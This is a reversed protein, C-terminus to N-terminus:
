RSQPVSARRHATREEPPETLGALWRRLLWPWFVMTGPVILARFGWSGHTAHPDTRNVGVIVFPIAYAFGFALYVALSILFAAAVM